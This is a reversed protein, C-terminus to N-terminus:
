SCPTVDVEVTTSASSPGYYITGGWYTSYPGYDVTITYKGTIAPMPLTISLPEHPPMSYAYSASYGNPGAVSVDVSGGPVMLPSSGIFVSVSGTWNHPPMCIPDDITGGPGVSTTTSSSYHGFPEM